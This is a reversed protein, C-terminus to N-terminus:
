PQFRGVELGGVGNQRERERKKRGTLPGSYFSKMYVRTAELKLPTLNIGLLSFLHATQFAVLQPLPVLDGLLLAEKPDRVSIM